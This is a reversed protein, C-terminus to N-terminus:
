KVMWIIVMMTVGVGYIIYRYKLAHCGSEWIGYAFQIIGLWLLLYALYMCGSLSFLISLIACTLSSYMGGAQTVLKSNKVGQATYHMSPLYINYKSIFPFKDFSIWMYSTMCHQREAELIHMTEHWAGCMFFWFIIFFLTEIIM